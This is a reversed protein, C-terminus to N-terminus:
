CSPPLKLVLIVVIIKCHLCGSIFDLFSDRRLIANIILLGVVDNTLLTTLRIQRLSYGHGMLVGLFLHLDLPFLPRLCSVTAFWLRFRWLFLLM